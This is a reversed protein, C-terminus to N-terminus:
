DSMEEFREQVYDFHESNFSDGFDQGMENAYEVCVSYFMALQDPDEIADICQTILDDDELDIEEMFAAQIDPDEFDATNLDLEEEDEESDEEEDYDDEEEYDEEEEDWGADEKLEEVVRTVKKRTDGETFEIVTEIGGEEFLADIIDFLGDNYNYETSSAAVEEEDIDDEEEPEPEPEADIVKKKKKKKKTSKNKEKKPKETGNIGYEEDLLESAEQWEEVDEVMPLDFFDLNAYKGGTTASAYMSKDGSKGAKGSADVEVDIYNIFEKPETTGVLMYRFVMHTDVGVGNQWRGQNESKIKTRSIGHKIMLPRLIITAFAASTYAYEYGESDKDLMKIENMVAHQAETITKHKVPPTYEEGM